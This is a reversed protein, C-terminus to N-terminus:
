RKGPPVYDRTMRGMRFATDSMVLMGLVVFLVVRKM